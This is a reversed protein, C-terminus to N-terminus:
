RGQSHDQSGWCIHTLYFINNFHFVFCYVVFSHGPVPERQLAEAKKFGLFSIEKEAVGRQGGVPINRMTEQGSGSTEQGALHLDAVRRWSAWGSHEM